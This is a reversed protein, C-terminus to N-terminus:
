HSKAILLVAAVAATLLLITSMDPLSSPQFISDPQRTVPPTAPIAGRARALKDFAALEEVLADTDNMTSRADLYHSSNREVKFFERWRGLWSNFQALETASFLSPKANWAALVGNAKQDTDDLYRYVSAENVFTPMLGSAELAAGHQYRGRVIM